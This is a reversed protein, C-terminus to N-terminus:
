DRQRGEKERDRKAGDTESDRKGAETDRGIERDRYGQIGTSHM